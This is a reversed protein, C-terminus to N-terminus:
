ASLVLAGSFLCPVVVNLTHALGVNHCRHVTASLIAIVDLAAIHNRMYLLAHM